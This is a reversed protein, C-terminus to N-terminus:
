CHPTRMASASGDQQWPLVEGGTFVALSQQPVPPDDGAEGGTTAFYMQGIHGPTAESLGPAQGMQPISKSRLGAHFPSAPEHQSSSSDPSRSRRKTTPTASHTGSSTSDIPSSRENMLCIGARHDATSCSSSHVGTTNQHPSGSSSRPQRENRVICSLM